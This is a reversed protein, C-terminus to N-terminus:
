NSRIKGLSVEHLLIERVTKPYWVGAKSKTPIKWLNFLDSIKQYTDGRTRLSIIKKRLQSEYDISSKEWEFDDVGLVILKKRVLGKSCGLERSIRRLSWRKKIYLDTLFSADDWPKPERFKITESVDTIHFFQQYLHDPPGGTYLFTSEQRGKKIGLQTDQISDTVTPRQQRAPHSSHLCSCCRNDAVPALSYALPM